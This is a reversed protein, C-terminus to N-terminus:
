RLPIKHMVLQHGASLDPDQGDHVRERPERWGRVWHEAIAALVDYLGKFPDTMLNTIWLRDANILAALEDGAVKVEPGVLFTDCEVERPRTFRRVIGEDFREVGLEPGFAQVPTAM